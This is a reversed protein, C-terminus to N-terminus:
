FSFKLRLFVVQVTSVYYSGSKNLIIQGILSIDWNEKISYSFNPSVFLSHSEGPSYVATLGANFMPTIPHMVTLFISYRYPYLNKASPQYAFVQSPNISTSGNMNYMFGATFYTSSEFLYDISLTGTFSHRNTTTDAYNYFYSFEGKFGAGKINGAWGGGFVIDQGVIGGLFQFDYNLVNTKWLFGATANEWRTFVKAAFEISSAVGTFYQIRLADSGPREEYDFDTFSFANFIDNPNWITNIGWNIRQRGLRIDIDGKSYQLYFRDITAHIAAGPIDLLAWSLYDYYGNKASDGTVITKAYNPTLKVFEGFFVRTRLDSKFTFADNIYWKFNIRNHILNSQLMTIPAQAPPHLFYESTMYKLYGALEWKRPKNPDRKKKKKKVNKVKINVATTDQSFVIVPIILLFILLVFRSM